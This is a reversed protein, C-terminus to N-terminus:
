IEKGGTLIKIQPIESVKESRDTIEEIEKGVLYLMSNLDGRVEPIYRGRVVWNRLARVMLSTTFWAVDAVQQASCPLPVVESDPVHTKLYEERDKAETLHVSYVECREGGIRGDIMFPVGDRVAAEYLMKRSLLSDTAGIVIDYGATSTEKMFRRGVAVIDGGIENVVKKLCQVKPKGVDRKTYFTTSINHTSVKDDDYVTINKVGLKTLQYVLNSGIGGAGVVLVKPNYRHPNYFALQRWHTDEPTGRLEEPLVTKPSKIKHRTPSTASNRHRNIKAM